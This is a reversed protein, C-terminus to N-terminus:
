DSAIQAFSVLRASICLAAMTHLQLVLLREQSVDSIPQTGQHWRGDRRINEVVVFSVSEGKLESM